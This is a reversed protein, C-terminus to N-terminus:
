EKYKEVDVNKNREHNNIFNNNDQSLKDVGEEVEVKGKIINTIAERIITSNGVFIETPDKEAFTYGTNVNLGDYINNKFHNEGFTAFNYDYQVLYNITDKSILWEYVVKVAENHKIMEDTVVKQEDTSRNYNNAIVLIRNYTHYYRTKNNKDYVPVDSFSVNMGETRNKVSYKKFYNTLSIASKGDIFDVLLDEDTKSDFDSNILGENYMTKYVEVVPKLSEYDYAGIKYNWFTPYISNLSVAPTGFMSFLDHVSGTAFELPTVGPVKEKIVRAMDLLENLTEPKKNPDLGAKVLIDNNFMLKPMSSGYKVGIVDDNYKLVEGDGAISYDIGISDLTRIFEKELQTKGMYNMIDIKTENAMKNVAVNDYDKNYLELDIYIENHGKNFDDVLKTIGKSIEDERFVVHVIEKNKKVEEVNFIKYARFICASVIFFLILTFFAKHEKFFAKM